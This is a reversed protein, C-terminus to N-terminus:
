GGARFTVSNVPGEWVTVATVVASEDAVAASLERHFWEAINEASPNVITFPPVDNICGYDLRKALVELKRKASVFDVAIADNDVGGGRAALEAEVKYSHGHLPESIGRYERLYHAAEFRAEVRVSFTGKRESTAPRQDSSATRQESNATGPEGSAARGEGSATGFVRELLGESMGLSRAEEPTTQSRLLDEARRDDWCDVPSSGGALEILTRLTKRREEPDNRTVPPLTCHAVPEVHRERLADEAGGAFAGIGFTPAATGVAAVVLNPGFQVTRRALVHRPLDLLELLLHRLLPLALTGLAAPTGRPRVRALLLPLLALALPLLFLAAALLAALARLRRLLAALVLLWALAAAVLLLAIGRLLTLLLGLLLALLLCLRL